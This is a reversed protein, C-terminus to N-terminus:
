DSVIRHGDYDGDGGADDTLDADAAPETEGGSPDVPLPEGRSRAALIALLTRVAREHTARSARLTMPTVGLEDYVLFDDRTADGHGVYDEAVQVLLAHLHILENKKM